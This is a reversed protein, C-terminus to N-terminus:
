NNNKILEITYSDVFGDNTFDTSLMKLYVGFESLDVSCKVNPWFMEDYTSLTVETIYVNKFIDVGDNQEEKTIYEVNEIYEYKELQKFFYKIDTSSRSNKLENEICSIIYRLSAKQLDDAKQEFKKVSNIRM